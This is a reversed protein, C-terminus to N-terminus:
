RIVQRYCKEIDTTVREWTLYDRIFKRGNEVMQANLEPNNLSVTMKEKLDNINGYKVVYGCKGQKIVEGCGCDDAVIVPTGCMIAEFPVLGFIELVGAYVLVDADVFAEFKENIFGTFLVKEDIELKEIQRMLTDLFGEDPGAIVLKVDKNMDLLSSFGSILFDLGKSKHLRGLYLVMKEDAAIGYKRRFKGREPLTQYQSVDFGQPVIEIKSEPVGMKLYQAREVKSVAILKSADLLIKDGWIFDYLKKLNQKQFIPLVSGYAQVIYPIGYKMAFKHVENNQYTRHNHLHIVDFDKLNRELWKKMSPSYFFNSIQAVCPFPIVSIGEARIIDAHQADFGFDTTIITVAHKRKALERSLDTCVKVDGGFKPSFYSIVQLTKM